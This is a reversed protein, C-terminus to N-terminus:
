FNSIKVTPGSHWNADGHWIEDFDTLRNCLYPSKVAKLIAATRWRPNSFFAIEYKEVIAQGIM